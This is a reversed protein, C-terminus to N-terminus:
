LCSIVLSIATLVAGVILTLRDEWAQQKKKKQEEEKRAQEDKPADSEYFAGVMPKVGSLRKPSLMRRVGMILFVLGTTFFFNAAGTKPTPHDRLFLFLWIGIGILLLIGFRILIRKNLSLKEM